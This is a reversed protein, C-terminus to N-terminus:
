ISLHNADIAEANARRSSFHHFGQAHSRLGDDIGDFRESLMSPEADARTMAARSQRVNSCKSNGDEQALTRKHRKGSRFDTRVFGSHERVFELREREGVHETPRPLAKPLARRDSRTILAGAQHHDIVGHAAANRQGNKSEICLQKERLGVFQLPADFLAEANLDLRQNGLLCGLLLGGFEARLQPLRFGIEAACQSLDLRQFPLELLESDPDGAEAPLLALRAILGADQFEVVEIHEAIM